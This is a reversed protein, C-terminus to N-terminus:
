ITFLIAIVPLYDKLAVRLKSLTRSMHYEVTKVSIGLEMSIEKYTYGYYRSLIFSKRANDDMAGLTEDLIRRIDKDFLSEPDCERLTDIRYQLERNSIRTLEDIHGSKSQESRLHHLIVNRAIGLLYPLAPVNEDLTKQKEWFVLMSESAISEATAEDYTYSKAFVVCAKYLRQFETQNSFVEKM